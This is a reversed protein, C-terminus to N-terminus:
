VKRLSDSTNLLSFTSITHHTLIETKKRNGREKKMNIEM